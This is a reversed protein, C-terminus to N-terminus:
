KAKKDLGRNPYFKRLGLFGTQGPIPVFERSRVLSIYLSKKPTAGRIPRGGRKLAELLEEMSVAHGVKELYLTAAESVTKGMFEDPRLQPRVGTGAAPIGASAAGSGTTPVAMDNLIQSLDTSDGIDQDLARIRQILPRMEEAKARFQQIYLNRASNLVETDDM